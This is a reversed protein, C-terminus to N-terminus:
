TAGARCGGRWRIPIMKGLLYQFAVSQPGSFVGLLFLFIMAVALLATGHLFWGSVALGLIAVRMLTGLVMSVPLVHRRHEIHAAGIIPSVTGGLQQLALGLGVAIDSGSLMHLYAPVFTPANVLRFGTMGLMGHLYHGAYNRKLNRWVFRDYAQEREETTKLGEYM